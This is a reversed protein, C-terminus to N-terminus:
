KEAVSLLARAKGVKPAYAVYARVDLGQAYVTTDRSQSNSMVGKGRSAHLNGQVDQTNWSFQIVYSMVTRLLWAFVPKYLGAGHGVDGTALDRPSQRLRCAIFRLRADASGRLCLTEVFSFM